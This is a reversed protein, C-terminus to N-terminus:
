ARGRWRSSWGCAGTPREDRASTSSAAASCRTSRPWACAWAPAAAAARADVGDNVVELVFTGDSAGSACASARRSPTSTRTACRRPSCRSRGAARARRPVEVAPDWDVELPPGEYSPASGRRAGRAADRRHRPRPPAVPRALAHRLDGVRPRSRTPAAGAGEASCSPEAGLVLSVGFLRQMVREHVERALDVARRAAPRARAPDHRDARQRGARRDQRADVDHPARARDARLPAGGRDAFIVGLWRGGASVPTCTLTTIGPCAAYRAPVQAELDGSRDGRRPGRRAGAPRGADGRAHRPRRRGARGRLRLQRGPVVIRRAEEYLLLGAREMSTLAACRRASGTTSPAVAAAATPTSARVAARGDHRAARDRANPSAEAM